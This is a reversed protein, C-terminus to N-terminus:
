FTEAAIPYFPDPFDVEAVAREHPSLSSRSRSQRKRGESTAIGSHADPASAASDDDDVDEEDEDDEADVAAATNTIVRRPM